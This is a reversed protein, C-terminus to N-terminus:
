TSHTNNYKVGDHVHKADEYQVSHPRPANPAIGLQTPLFNASNGSRGKEQQPSIRVLSYRWTWSTSFATVLIAHLECTPLAIIGRFLGLNARQIHM